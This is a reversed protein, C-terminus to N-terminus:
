KMNAKIYTNFLQPDNHSAEIIEQMITLQDIVSQEENADPTLRNGDTDVGYNGTVMPDRGYERITAARLDIINKWTDLDSGKNEKFKKYCELRTPLEEVPADNEEHGGSLVLNTLEQVRDAQAKKLSAIEADKSKIAESLMSAYTDETVGTVNEEDTM